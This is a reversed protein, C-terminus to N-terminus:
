DKKHYQAVEIRNLARRLFLEAQVVDVGRDRRLAEEARRKDEMAGEIDIEYPWEAGKTVITTSNEDVSIYGDEIAAVLVTDEKFIRIKGIKLPTILPARGKLVALEGDIGKVVVMDIDDSFFQRKPTVIDLHFLSM